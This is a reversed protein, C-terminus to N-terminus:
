LSAKEIWFHDCSMKKELCTTVHLTSVHVRMCISVYFVCVAVCMYVSMCVSERFSCASCPHNLISFHSGSGPKHLAVYRFCATLCTLRPPHHLEPYMPCTHVDPWSISVLSLHASPAWNNMGQKDSQNYCPSAKQPSPYGVKLETRSHPLSGQKIRQHWYHRVQLLIEFVSSMRSGTISKLTSEQRHPVATPSYHPTSRGLWGVQKGELQHRLGSCGVTTKPAISLCALNQIENQAWERRGVTKQKGTGEM